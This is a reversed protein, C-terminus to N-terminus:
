SYLKMLQNPIEENFMPQTSNTNKTGINIAAPQKKDLRDIVQEVLSELRKASVNFEIKSLSSIMQERSMGDYYSNVVQYTPQAPTPNDMYPDFLFDTVDGSGYLSAPKYNNQVMDSTRYLTLYNRPVGDIGFNPDSVSVLNYRGSSKNISEVKWPGKSYYLDGVTRTGAFDDTKFTKGKSDSTFIVEDNTNMARDTGMASAIDYSNNQLNSQMATMQESYSPLKPGIPSDYKNLDVNKLSDPMVPGIFDSPNGSPTFLGQEIMWNYIDAATASYKMVVDSKSSNRIAAVDPVVAGGVFYSAGEILDSNIRPGIPSGVSLSPTKGAYYEFTRGWPYEANYPDVAYGRSHEPRDGFYTDRIYKLQAPITFGYDSIRGTDVFNLLGVAAQGNKDYTVESLSKTGFLKKCSDEWLGTAFITAIEAPSLGAELGQKVFTIAAPDSRYGSGFGSLNQLSSSMNIKGQTDGSYSGYTRDKVYRMITDVYPNYRTQKTVSQAGGANGEICTWNDGNNNLIWGVHDWRRGQGYLEDVEPNPNDWDFFVVDGRAADKKDVEQWDSSEQMAKLLYGVTLNYPGIYGSRKMVQSVYNACWDGDTGGTSGTCNVESRNKGVDQEAMSIFKEATASSGSTSGGNDGSFFRKIGSFLDKAGNVLADLIGGDSDYDSDAERNAYEAKYASAIDDKAAELLYKNRAKNWKKAYSKDSQWVHKPHDKQFQEYAKEEYDAIRVGQSELLKDAATVAEAEERQDQIASYSDDDDDFKFISFLGSTLDKLESMADTVEESFEFGFDGSGYLGVKSGSIVDSINESSIRGTLPNSVYVRSGRGGVINVYHNNGNQTGYAGGSGLVTIPNRSSASLLSERTVTGPILNVGMNRATNIYGSVSTGRRPDYSGSGTMSGALSAANIRGGRRNINETLALPGCGRQGMNMYTGYSAMNGSGTEDLVEVPNGEEDTYVDVIDGVVPIRKILGATGEKWGSFADSFGQKVSAVGAKLLKGGDFAQILFGVGSMVAGKVMTIGGNIAKVFSGVTTLAQDINALIPTVWKTMVEVIPKIQPILEERIVSVIPSASGEPEGDYDGSGTLTGDLVNGKIPQYGTNNAPIMDTASKTDEVKAGTPNFVSGLGDKLNNLGSDVLTKGEEKLKKDHKLAGVIFKVGGVITKLSGSVIELTGTIMKLMPTIVMLVPKMVNVIVELAPALIPTLAELLPNLADFLMEIIPGISEFIPQLVKVLSIAMKSVTDMVKTLSKSITNIIPTIVKKITNFAKNLPKVAKSLAKEVLTMIAKVGSLGAIASLIMKGFGALIKTIGGLMKGINFLSSVKGKGGAAAAGEEGAVAESATEPKAKSKSGSKKGKKGSMNESIGIISDRIVTFISEKRGSIMESMENTAVDSMSEPTKLKAAKKKEEEKNFVSMFGKGFESSNMFDKFKDVVKDTAKEAGEEKNPKDQEAKDREAFINKFTDSIGTTIPKILNDNLAKVATKGAGLVTKAPNTIFTQVLGDTKIGNEDTSGFLSERVASGGSLVDSAGSKFLKLIPAFIKTAFTKLGKFGLKLIAKIPTLIKHFALTVGALIKGIIGKNQGSGDEANKSNVRNLMPIISQNLRKKTNADQIQGIMQKIANIDAQSVEGDATATQAMQMIQQVLLKDEDSISNNKSLAENSFDQQVGKFAVREAVEHMKDTAAEKARGILENGKVKITDKAASVLNTGIQGVNSAVSTIQGIYDTNGDVGAPTNGLGLIQGIRSDSLKTMLSDVIADAEPSSPPNNTPPTNNDGGTTGGGSRHKRNGTNTGDSLNRFTNKMMQDTITGAQDGYDGQAVEIAEQRMNILAQSVGQIFREGDIISGSLKLLITQCLTKWYQPSGGRATKILKVAYNITAMDNPNLDSTKLMSGGSRELYMVYTAQLAKLAIDLEDQSYKVGSEAEINAQMRDIRRQDIRIDIAKDTVANFKNVQVNETTLKGYENIHLERKNLANDISKLYGPIIEIITQRTKNDFLAKETNYKNIRYQSYDTEGGTGQERNFLYKKITPNELVSRIMRQSIADSFQNFTQGWQGITQGKITLNENNRVLGDMLLNFINEPSANEKMAPLMAMMTSVLPNSSVINSSKATQYIKGLSLRGSEDVMSDNKYGEVQAEIQVTNLQILKDLKSELTSNISHLTKDLNNVSSIIEATRTNITTVLEATNALAAEAQKAGIKYMASLQKSSEATSPINLSPKEDDNSDTNNGFDFEDERNSESDIEDANNYFWASIDKVINGSKIRRYTNQVDTVLSEAQMQSAVAKADNKLRILNSAYENGTTTIDYKVIEMARKLFKNAM